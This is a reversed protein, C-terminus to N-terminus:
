KMKWHKFLFAMMVKKYDREPSKPIGNKGSGWLVCEVKKKDCAAKLMTAYRPLHMKDSKASFQNIMLPPFKSTLGTLVLYDTGMPQLFVSIVSIKDTRCGLSEAILAGASAGSLGIRKPDINWEKRNKIILTIAKECEAMISMYTHDKDLFPYNVTICSVGKNLYDNVAVFHHIASKDGMKFGGGHFYVLVPTPKSSKAKWFDMKDRSHKGYTVNAKTPKPRGGKGRAFCTLLCLCVCTLIITRSKM